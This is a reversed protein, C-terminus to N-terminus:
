GLLVRLFFFLTSRCGWRKQEGEITERLRRKRKRARPSSPSPHLASPKLSRPRRSSEERLFCITHTARIKQIWNGLVSGEECFIDASFSTKRTMTTMGNNNNSNSSSNKNSIRSQSLGFAHELVRRSTRPSLPRLARRHARARANREREREERALKRRASRARPEEKGDREM